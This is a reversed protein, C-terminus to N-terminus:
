KSLGKYDKKRTDLDKNLRDNEKRKELIRKKIDQIEKGKAEILKDNKRLKEEFLAENEAKEQRLYKYNNELESIKDKLQEM